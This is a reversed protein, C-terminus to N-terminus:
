YLEKRAQNKIKQASKKWKGKVMGFTRNLIDKNTAFKVIEAFSKANLSANGVLGGDINPMALLEKANEPKMSGGYIVRVKKAANSGYMKALIYRILKHGEEADKSTAAKHKPDGKSIAWVPEYAINVKLIQNKDINNLCNKLQNEIIIKTKNNKRQELNEGICLIPKLGHKLAAIVKKNILLDNEGIERRESHGLIVYECGIEKLMAPSIEGTYAGSDEFHMNQAGLKIDSGKLAKSVAQLATFAPCIVIYVNKIKKVLKKFEKVFEISEKVTKNMKWNAAILKKM